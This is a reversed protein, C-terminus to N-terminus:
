QHQKIRLTISTIKYINVDINSTIQSTKQGSTTTKFTKTLSCCSNSLVIVIDKTAIAWQSSFINSLTHKLHPSNDRSLSKRAIHGREGGHWAHNHRLGRSHPSTVATYTVDVKTYTDKQSSGPLCDEVGEGWEEQHNRAELVGSMLLVQGSAWTIVSGERTHGGPSSPQKFPKIKSFLDNFHRQLIHKLLSHKNSKNFDDWYLSDSSAYWLM